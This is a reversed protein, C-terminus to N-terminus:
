QELKYVTQTTNKATALMKKKKKLGKNLLAQYLSSQQGMDATSFKPQRNRHQRRSPAFLGQRPGTLDFCVRTPVCLTECVRTCMSCSPYFADKNKTVQTKVLYKLLRDTLLIYTM